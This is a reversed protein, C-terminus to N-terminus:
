GLVSSVLRVFTFDTRLLEVVFSIQSAVHAKVRPLLGEGAVDAALAEDSLVPHHLVSVGVLLLSGVHRTSEYSLLGVHEPRRSVCVNLLVGAEGHAEGQAEGHAARVWCELLSHILLHIEIAAAAAVSFLMIPDKCGPSPPTLLPQSPLLSSPSCLVCHDRVTAM